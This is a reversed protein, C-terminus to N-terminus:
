DLAQYALTWFDRCIPPPIPSTWTAPTMLITVLDESPDSRWATGLGGDWGFTGPGWWGDRRTAVALGFGWGLADFYGPVFGSVAKQSPTLHDTTMLAVSARSLLRRGNGYSGRELMMRGFALYDDATSVLGGTPGGGGSPFAPPQAWLSSSPADHVTLAGTAPDTWYSTALRSLDAPPVHFGTSDMGLPEFVRGRLFSGFDQGSARAVLVGLVDAPTGYLWREGPQFMLPLSGLGRMWEDPAPPVSPWPGFLADAADEVPNPVGTDGLGMRFTLLDRVTVPRSAPVTDEIPGELRRVVRRGALEPLWRDVPDDLRLVCEELLIMTAAATIPKTMSTIRFITDRQVAGVADVHVSGKHSILTVAGPVTGREVHDAMVEHMRDLRVKSLGM